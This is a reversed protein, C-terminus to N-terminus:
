KWFRGKGCNSYEEMDVLKQCKAFETLDELKNCKGFVPVKNIKLMHYYFSLSVNDTEGTIKWKNSITETTNLM